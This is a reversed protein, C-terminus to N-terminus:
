GAAGTLRRASAFHLLLLPRDRDDSEGGAM